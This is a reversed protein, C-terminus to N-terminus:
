GGVQTHLGQRVYIIHSSFPDIKVTDKTTVVDYETLDLVGTAVKDDEVTDTAWRVALLYAVLANVWSTATADREMEKIM